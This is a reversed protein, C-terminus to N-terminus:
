LKIIVTTQKISSKKYKKVFIGPWKNKSKICNWFGTHANKEVKEHYKAFEKKKKTYKLGSRLDKYEASNGTQWYIQNKHKAKNSFKAFFWSNKNIFIQKTNM